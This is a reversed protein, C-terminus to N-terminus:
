TNRCVFETGAGVSKQQVQVLECTCQVYNLNRYFGTIGMYHHLFFFLFYFSRM